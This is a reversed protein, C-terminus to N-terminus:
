DEEEAFLDRDWPNDGDVSAAPHREMKFRDQIAFDLLQDELLENMVRERREKM